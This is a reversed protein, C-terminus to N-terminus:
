GFAGMASWLIASSMLALGIVDGNLLQREIANHPATNLLSDDVIDIDSAGLNEFSIANTEIDSAALSSMVGDSYNPRFANANEIVHLM